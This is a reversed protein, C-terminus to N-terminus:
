DDEDDDDDVVRKKKHKRENYNKGKYSNAQIMANDGMFHVALVRLYKKIRM